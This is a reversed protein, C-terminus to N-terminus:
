KGYNANMKSPSENNIIPVEERKDKGFVIGTM